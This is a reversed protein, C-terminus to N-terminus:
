GLLMKFLGFATGAERKKEPYEASLIRMYDQASLGPNDSVIGECISVLDKNGVKNLYDLFVRDIRRVTKKSYVEEEPFDELLNKFIYEKYHSSDKKYLDKVDEGYDDFYKQVEKKIFRKPISITKQKRSSELYKTSKVKVYLVDKGSYDYANIVVGEIFDRGHQKNYNINASDLAKVMYDICEEQTDFKDAFYEKALYHRFLGPMINVNWKGYSYYMNFITKPMKFDYQKSFFELLYHNLFENSLVIGILSIDIRVTPYAIQHPNLHGYLEFLLVPNEKKYDKFFYEINTIDINSLKKLIEKTAVPVGRTKPIIEILEEEHYIGYFILCSGDLKEYANYITEGDEEYMPKKFKHIKPMSQIYQETDFVLDKEKWEIQTIVMSGLHYNRSSCIVGRVVNGQPTVVDFDKINEVDTGNFYKESLEIKSQM